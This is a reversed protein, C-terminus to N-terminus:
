GPAVDSDTGRAMRALVRRHRNFSAFLHEFIPSYHDVLEDDTTCPLV